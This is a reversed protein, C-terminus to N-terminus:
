PSQDLAMLLDSGQLLSCNNAPANVEYDLQTLDLLDPISLDPDMLLLPDQRRVRKFFGDGSGKSAVKIALHGAHMLTGQSGTVLRLKPASLQNGTNTESGGTAVMDTMRDQSPRTTASSM